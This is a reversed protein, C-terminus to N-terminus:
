NAGRNRLPFLGHWGHGQWWFVLPCTNSINRWTFFMTGTGFTKYSPFAAGLPRHARNLQAVQKLIQIGKTLLINEFRVRNDASSFFSETPPQTRRRYAKTEHRTAEVGGLYEKVLDPQQESAPYILNLKESPKGVQNEAVHHHFVKVKKMIEDNDLAFKWLWRCTDLGWTHCCFVCVIFRITDNNVLTYNPVGSTHNAKLWNGTIRSITGGTALLDDYYVFNNQAAGGCVAYTIGYHQQLVEDLLVLIEGQSKPAPQLNLFVTERLFDPVTAYNLKGSIGILSKHILDKAKEKSVYIDQNLLHLFEQLVFERDGEDFQNVWDIINQSTLHIDFDNQYDGIIALINDALEKMELSGNKGDRIIL